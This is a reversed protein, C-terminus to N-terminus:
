GHERPLHAAKWDTWGGTFVRVPSFGLSLLARAVLRSDHCEGGSCYVIIPKDRSKELAPSLRQYARGFDDRPLSLAGPIHNRRYFVEDRADLVLASHKEVATRIADLEVTEVQTDPVLPAKILRTLEAALRQQPPQYGLSMPAGRFRNILLGIAMSVIALAIVGIFDRLYPRKVPATAPPEPALEARQEFAPDMRM